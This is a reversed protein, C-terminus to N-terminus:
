PFHAKMTRAAGPTGAVVSQTFLIGFPSYAIADALLQSGVLAGIGWLWAQHVRGRRRRDAVMGILPFILPIAVSVIWWGWPILFPMPLLRGFGPGTISAMACFMLRRHWDTRRRMAIGALATAAFALIGLSNGFMFENQDFFPPGGGAQLSQRTMLFGMVTMAPIWALSLLGLQRHLTVNGTAVLGNQLVYLVVWGFFVFAHIHFIIPVSFSSRGAALNFAFGAVIVLAMAISMYFFFAREREILSKTPQATTAM